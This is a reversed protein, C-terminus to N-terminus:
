KMNAAGLNIDSDELIIRICSENGFMMASHLAICNMLVSDTFWVITNRMCVYMGNNGEEDAHDPNASNELLISIISSYDGEVAM